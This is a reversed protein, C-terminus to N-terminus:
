INGLNSALEAEINQYKLPQDKYKQSKLNQNTYQRLKFIQYSKRLTSLNLLSLKLAKIRNIATQGPLSHTSQRPSTLTLAM